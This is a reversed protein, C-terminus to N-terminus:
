QFQYATCKVVRMPIRSPKKKTFFCFYFIYSTGTWGSFWVLVLRDLGTQNEFLCPRNGTGRHSHVRSPGIVGPKIHMQLSSFGPWNAALARTETESVPFRCERRCHMLDGSDFAGGSSLWSMVQGSTVCSSGSDADSLSQRQRGGDLFDRKM